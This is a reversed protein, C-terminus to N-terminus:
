ASIWRALRALAEDLVEDKKSFCFRLFSAPPATEYFASVPVATVRAEITMRRNMEVDSVNLRLPAADATIFYTGECPVVGFGLKVLGAAFRDRKAALGGALDRYYADGKGLGYAVARQLNPPTTFTTFQHAKAIPDLLAPAATVYGVKWGTLSFTKGASGIRVTRERMGPLSM